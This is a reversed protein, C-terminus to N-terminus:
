SRQRSGGMSVKALKCAERCSCPVIRRNVECATRSGARASISTLDAKQLLFTGMQMGGALHFKVQGSLSGAFYNPRMGGM